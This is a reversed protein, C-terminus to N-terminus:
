AFIWILDVITLREGGAEQLFCDVIWVRIYVIDRVKLM